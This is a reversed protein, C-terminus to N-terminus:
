VSCNTVHLPDLLLRLKPTIPSARAIAVALRHRPSPAALAFWWRRPDDGLAADMSLDIRSPALTFAFQTLPLALGLRRAKIYSEKLTWLAYFHDRAATPDHALARLAATEAAAFNRAALALLDPNPRLEEVDVGAAPAGTVICACLGRTHSLNFTIRSAREPAAITPCGHADAVFRWDAPPVPAYRSLARRVLAHAVAYLCRDREFRLRDHHALEDPSLLASCAALTPADVADPWALWVDAHDPALPLM